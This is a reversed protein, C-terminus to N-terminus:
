NTVEHKFGAPPSPLVIELAVLRSLFLCCVFRAAEMKM